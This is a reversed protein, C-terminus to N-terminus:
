NHYIVIPGPKPNVTITLTTANACQGVGPTFTYITTTTNNLAPSWTGTIGNLSTTPLPALTAGSCVPAVPNFVPTLTSGAVAITISVTSTCNRSDRVTVTYTGAALGTFVNSAQFTVGNISYSM